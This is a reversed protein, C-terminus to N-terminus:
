DMNHNKPKDGKQYIPKYLIGEPLKVVSFGDVTSYLKEIHKPIVLLPEDTKPDARKVAVFSGDYLAKGEPSYWPLYNGSDQNKCYRELESVVMRFDSLSGGSYFVDMEVNKVIRNAMEKFDDRKMKKVEKTQHRM